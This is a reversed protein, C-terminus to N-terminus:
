NWGQKKTVIDSFIPFNTGIFTVIGIFLLVIAGIAIKFDQSRWDLTKKINPFKKFYLTYITSSLLLYIVFFALLIYFSFPSSDEFSHVSIKSLIGSRTVFVAYLMTILSFQSLWFNTRALNLSHREVILTHLLTACLIWPILSANEVPDWGWFGGWGLTEYAWFGGLVIGLGLSSAALLTWRRISQQLEEYKQYVLVSISLIYLVFIMAYGLFLIPPHIAMWINELVPNLGRGDIPLTGVPVGMASYTQWIFEFPSKIILLLAIFVLGLSFISLSLADINHKKAERRFLLAIIGIFLGWLM